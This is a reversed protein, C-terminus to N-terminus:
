LLLHHFCVHLCLIPIFYYLEKNGAIVFAPLFGKRLRVSPPSNLVWPSFLSRLGWDSQLLKYMPEESAASSVALQFNLDQHVHQCRLTSAIGQSNLPKPHKSASLNFLCCTPKPNELPWTNWAWFFSWSSFYCQAYLPTLAFEHLNQTKSTLFRGTEVKPFFDSSQSQLSSLNFVIDVSPGLGKRYPM